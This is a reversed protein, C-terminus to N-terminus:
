WRRTELKDLESKAVASFLQEVELDRDTKPYGAPPSTVTEPASSLAGSQRARISNVLNRDADIKAADRASAGDLVLVGEVAQKLYTQTLYAPARSALCTVWTEGVLAYIRYPDEPDIRVEVSGRNVLM